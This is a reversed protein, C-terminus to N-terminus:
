IMPLPVIMWLFYISFILLYSLLIKLLNMKNKRLESIEACLDDYDYNEFSHWIQYMFQEWTHISAIPLTECLSKVRVVFILTFLRCIASGNTINHSCCFKWLQFAHEFSNTEGEGNFKLQSLFHLIKRPTKPPFTGFFMEM